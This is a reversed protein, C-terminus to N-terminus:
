WKHKFTIVKVVLGVETAGVVAAGMVAAVVETAGVVAAGVVAAGVETTGVVGGVLGM